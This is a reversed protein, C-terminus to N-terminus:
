AEIIVNASENFLIEFDKYIFLVNDLGNGVLSAAVIINLNFGEEGV